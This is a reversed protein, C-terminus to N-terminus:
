GIPDATNVGGRVHRAGATATRHGGGPRCHLAEAFAAIQPHCALDHLKELTVVTHSDDEGAWPVDALTWTYEIVREDLDMSVEPEPLTFTTTGM